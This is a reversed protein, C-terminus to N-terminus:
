RRLLETMEDYPMPHAFLYGQVEPCDNKILFSLQEKTEVGEAIVDIQMSKALAIIAQTIAVDEDNYPIDRVFSQDIKLKDIPLRKLYSLSSYGTGFDDIALAIGMDSIAQLVKIAKKPDKMIQGETVELLLWEPKCRSEELLTHLVEFFDDKELQKISLNLSLYGPSLGEEHWLAFQAMAIGMVIRDIEVIMGNEEALPIFKDPPVLGLEPHRWRILAEMGTMTKSSAHYQPQYYVTFETNQIARRLNTEMLVREFASETMDKTYFNYSNRGGDKAHYMAADANRLLSGASEGDEPFISIGISCTVFLENDGIYIPAGFALLLKQALSAVTHPDDVDEIIITFEDGGIRALTDEARLSSQLRAGTECLVQDGVEHGLSDNIQKFQDLDIFFLAVQQQSRKAKEIAHTLRDNFLSRNPLRTLNDHHALHTLREQVKMQETADTDFIVYADKGHYKIFHIHAQVYYRSGDKRRHVSTNTVSNKKMGFAKLQAVKEETLDPNTDYVTMTLLEDLTYGLASLGGENAYLYRHTEYDLVYIENTANQIITSLEKKDHQLSIIETINQITGALKYAEGNEDFYALGRVMIYAVTGDNKHIKHQSEQVSKTAIVRKIASKISKQDHEDLFQYYSELTPQYTHPDKGHMKFVEPSWYAKKSRLDIEWNGVHAISQAELLKTESEKLQQTSELFIETREQTKAEVEDELTRNKNQLLAKVMTNRKEYLAFFAVSMSLPMTIYFYEFLSYPALLGIAAMSVIYATIGAKQNVLYFVPFLYVIYWSVGVVGHNVNIFSFSVLLFFSILLFSTMSHILERSRRLFYITVLSLLVVSADIFMQPLQGEMYRVVALFSLMLVVISLIGNFFLYRLQLEYEEESFEFGSTFYNNLLM